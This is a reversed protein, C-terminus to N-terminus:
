VFDPSLPRQSALANCETEQGLHGLNPSSSMAFICPLGSVAPIVTISNRPLGKSGELGPVHRQRKEIKQSGYIIQLTSLQRGSFWNARIDERILKENDLMWLANTPFLSIRRGTVTSKISSLVYIWPPVFLYLEIASYVRHSKRKDQTVTSSLTKGFAM